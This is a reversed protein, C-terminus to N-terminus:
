SHHMKLDQQCVLDEREQRHLASSLYLDPLPDRTTKGAQVWPPHVHCANSRLYKPAAAPGVLVLMDDRCLTEEARPSHEHRSGLILTGTWQPEPTQASGALHASSTM